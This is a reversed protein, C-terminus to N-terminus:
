WRFAPHITPYSAITIDLRWMHYERYISLKPQLHIRQQERTM